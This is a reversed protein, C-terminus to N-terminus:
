QDDGKRHQNLQYAALKAKNNMPADVLVEKFALLTQKTLNSKVADNAAPSIRNWHSLMKAAKPSTALKAMTYLPIMTAALAPGVIPVGMAPLLGGGAALSTAIFAKMSPPVSGQKMSQDISRLSRELGMLNEYQKGWIMNVGKDGPKQLESLFRGLNVPLISNSRDISKNLASTIINSRIAPMVDKVLSRNAAIVEPTSDAFLKGAFKQLSSRDEIAKMLATNDRFTHNMAQFYSSARSYAKAVEPASAIAWSDMDKHISDYMRTLAVPDNVGISTNGSQYANKVQTLERGITTRLERATKYHLASFEPVQNTFDTLKDKLSKSLSSDKLLSLATERSQKLSILDQGSAEALKDVNDFLQHSKAKVSTYRDRIAAAITPLDGQSGEAVSDAFMRIAPEIQKQQTAKIGVDGTFPLSSAINAGTKRWFSSESVDISSLGLGLGAMQNIDRSAQKGIGFVKRGAGIIGAGAASVGGFIAANETANGIRTEGQGPERALGLMAGQAVSGSIAGLGGATTAGAATAFALTDAIFQGAGFATSHAKKAADFGQNRDNVMGQIEQDSRGEIHKFYPKAIQDTYHSLGENFGEWVSKGISFDQANGGLEVSLAPNRSSQDPGIPAAQASSIPSLNFNIKNDEVPQQPTPPQSPIHQIGPNFPDTSAASADMVATGGENLPTPSETNGVGMQPSLDNPNAKWQAQQALAAKVNPDNPDLQFASEIKSQM